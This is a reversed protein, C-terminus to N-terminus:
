GSSHIRTANVLILMESQQTDESTQGFVPASLGPLTTTDTSTSASSIGTIIVWERDEIIVDTTITSRQIIPAERVYGVVSSIEPELRLRVGRPTRHANAKMKFGAQVYEFGSLTVTGEPSTTFKPVPITQGRNLEAETEEVLYMTARDEVTGHRGSETANIVAQVILHPDVGTATSLTNLTFGGGVSWEAGLTRLFGSTVNVVTVELLWADAGLQTIREYQKALDIQTETGAIMIRDDIVQVTAESGLLAQINKSAQEAEEYGSRIVLLERPADEPKIFRVMSGDYDAVLEFREAIQQLATQADLNRYDVTFYEGEAGKPPTISVGTQNAIELLLIAGSIEYANFDVTGIGWPERDRRPLDPSPPM